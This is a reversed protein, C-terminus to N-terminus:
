VIGRELSTKKDFSGDINSAEFLVRDDRRSLRSADRASLDPNERMVLGVAQKYYGIFPLQQDALILEFHSVEEGPTDDRVWAVGSGSDEDFEPVGSLDEKFMVGM